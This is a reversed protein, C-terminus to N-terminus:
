RQDHAALLGEGFQRSLCFPADGWFPNDGLAVLAAEAGAPDREALACLFWNDAASLSPARGKRSSRM